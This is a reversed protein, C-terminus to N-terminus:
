VQKQHKSTHLKGNKIMVNMCASVSFPGNLDLQLNETDAKIYTIIWFPFSCILLCWFCTLFPINWLSSLSLFTKCIGHLNLNILDEQRNTGGGGVWWCLRHSSQSHVLDTSMTPQVTLALGRAQTIWPECMCLRHGPALGGGQLFYLYKLRSPELSQIRDTQYHWIPKGLVM